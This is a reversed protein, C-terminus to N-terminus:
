FPCENFSNVVKKWISFDIPIDGIDEGEVGCVIITGVLIDGPIKMNKELGLNKGDENVIAIVPCRDEDPSLLTVMEINGGVTKQLNELKMSINTMHGYEEDPRKVICKIKEKM